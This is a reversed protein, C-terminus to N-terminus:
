ETTTVADIFKNIAKETRSEAKALDSVYTECNNGVAKFLIDWTNGFNFVSNMDYYVYKYIIDLMEDSGEIRATKGKLICDYAAYRIYQDSFYALTDIITGIKEPDRITKPVAVGSPGAPNGFTFYGDQSEDYKPLPLVGYDSKMERCSPLANYGTILNNMSTTFFMARDTQFLNLTINTDTWVGATNSQSLYDCVVQAANVYSESGMNFIIEDNDGRLIMREGFGAILDSGPNGTLPWLDNETMASDGDLDVAKGVTFEKLKDFTWKGDRVLQELGTVGFREAVTQNYAICGPMYFFFPSICGSTFYYHGDVQFDDYVSQCWWPQSMDIKELASLDYLHGGLINTNLGINVSNIVLDYADEDSMVTTKIIRAVEERDNYPNNVIKINLYDETARDRRLISDNLVEGTEEESLPLNPRQDYSQAIIRFEYGDYDQKERTDLYNTTEEITTSEATTGADPTTEDENGTQGGCGAAASVVLALALALSIKQQKM